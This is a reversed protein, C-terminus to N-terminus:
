RWVKHIRVVDLQDNRGEIKQETGIGLQTSIGFKYSSLVDRSSGVVFHVAKVELHRVM